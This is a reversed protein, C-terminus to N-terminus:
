KISSKKKREACLVNTPRGTLLQPLRMKECVYYDKEPIPNGGEMAKIAEDYLAGHVKEVENAWYFSRTALSM